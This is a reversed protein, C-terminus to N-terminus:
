VVEYMRVVGEPLTDAAESNQRVETRVMVESKSRDHGPSIPDSSVITNIHNPGTSINGMAFRDRDEEHSTKNGARFLNKCRCFLCPPSHQQQEQLQTAALRREEVFRFKKPSPSSVMSDTASLATSTPSWSEKKKHFMMKAKSGLTSVTAAISGRREYDPRLAPFVRGLGIALLGDRYLKM